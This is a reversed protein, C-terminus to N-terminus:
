EEEALHDELQEAVVLGQLVAAIAELEVVEARAELPITIIPVDQQVMTKDQEHIQIKVHVELTQRHLQEDLPPHVAQEERHLQAVRVDQPMPVM